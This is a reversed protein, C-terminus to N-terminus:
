AALLEEADLDLIQQAHRALSTMFMDDGRETRVVLMPAIVAMLVGHFARRRYEEWCEDWGFKEVGLALLREHYERLLAEEHARRDDVALGAGLFYSADLLPPGFGVTQWDVVTLPKPSGGEGFLLNDLRYDGHAISFPRPRDDLWPDIRPVFREVLARHEPALREEYRELFGPLLAGVVAGNVATPMTLWTAASLGEDEWVPAHIRALERMALSAQEVTCGAIQDGQVAPAADELVLTFWGEEADWAALHSRAVPDGIRAAVERYFRIEREYIGLNIGTTRSTEDAAAVKLVVSAPGPGAEWALRFRYSESMQGTGIPELEFGTVAAEAGAAGSARLVETLWPESADQARRVLEIGM